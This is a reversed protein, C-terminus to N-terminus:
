PTTEPPASSSKSEAKGGGTSGGAQPERFKVILSIRRNSPDNPAEPKRLQVDAFGRVQVIRGEELGAEILIRRSANARDVSLEWNTYNIRGRFPRSDTHGEIIIQNPLRALEEGITRLAQRGSDTPEGSGTDFFMGTETELLEIRLGEATVTAVVYDKLKDLEPLEKMAQQIKDALQELNDEEMAMQPQFGKLEEEFGTPDNFYAAVADKEQQSANMMWLVLFLAMMATVFDAFAVKWAGGHHASGRIVKKILIPSGSEGSETGVGAEEPM